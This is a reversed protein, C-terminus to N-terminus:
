ELGQVPRAGVVEVGGSNGICLDLFYKGVPKERGECKRVYGPREKERGVRAVM